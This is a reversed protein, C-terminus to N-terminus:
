VRRRLVLRFTAGPLPGNDLLEIGGDYYDHLIEGVIALGLGVGDKKKSYYPEFIISPDEEINIGPGSDSFIIELEGDIKQQVDVQIARENQPVETLWYISNQILNVFIEQIESEDVTVHHETRSLHIEIKGRKLDGELVSFSDRIVDELVIESPRGRSRGGFPEIRKFIDSFRKKQKEIEHLLQVFQGTTELCESGSKSAIHHIGKYTQDGIRGLIPRGDHLVGDILQGLTALRRYRVIINQAKEVKQSLEKRKNDILEILERDDPYRNVAFNYVTNLDFGKFISEPTENTKRPSARYRLVELENLITIIIYKLQEFAIGDKLGERNSQDQLTPNDEASISVYGIIQDNGIRMSPNQIRRRDLRLWDDGQEGYPLVRFSDRYISVGSFEKLINRVDKITRGVEQSIPMLSEKDRDWISLNLHFPGCATIGSENIRPINHIISELEYRNGRIDIQINFSGYDDVQGSLFYHPNNLLELIGVKGNIDQETEPLNSIDLYIQFDQMDSHPSVLRALQIRLNRFDDFKWDQTLGDMQLITGSNLNIQALDDEFLGLQQMLGHPYIYKVDSEELEILVEDLYKDNDDFQSWDFYALSEKNSNKERSIVLLEKALRAAGFRGIGKEGLVRRGGKSLPSKRKNSTAPELWVTQLTNLSMGHGNDIIEIRGEGESFSGTFRVLVHTADADYANKVIEIVAVSVDSILEDGIARMIRAKPRLGQLILEDETM